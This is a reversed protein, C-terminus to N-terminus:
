RASACACVCIRVCMACAKSALNSGNRDEEERDLTSRTRRTQGSGWTGSTAAEMDCRDVVLLLSRVGHSSSSSVVVTSILRVHHVVTVHLHVGGQLAEALLHLVDAARLSSLLVGGAHATVDPHAVGLPLATLGLSLGAWGGSLCQDHVLCATILSQNTPNILYEFCLWFM